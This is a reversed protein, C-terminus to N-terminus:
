RRRLVTVELRERRWLLALAVFLLTMVLSGWWEAVNQVRDKLQPAVAEAVFVNALGLLVLAALLVQLAHRLPTHDLGRHHVVANGAILMALCTCGFYAVTGWQRLARYVAGESGLFSGYLALAVAALLGLGPLWRAGRAGALWRAALLWLVAQLAASPLVIARFLQNALGERAARSVSFCGELFPNCPPVFGLATSVGWALLVALCPLGGAVLPLPWLPLPRAAPPSM